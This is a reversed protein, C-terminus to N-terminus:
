SNSKESQLAQGGLLGVIAGFGIKALDFLGRIVEQLLTPPEKGAALTLVVCLAIFLLTGIASTLFVLKFQASIEPKRSGKIEEVVTERELKEGEPCIYRRRKSSWFSKYWPHKFCEVAVELGTGVVNGKAM